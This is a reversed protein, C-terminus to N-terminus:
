SSTRKRDDIDNRSRRILADVKARFILDQGNLTAVGILLYGALGAAAIAIRRMM